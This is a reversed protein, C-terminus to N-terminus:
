DIGGWGVGLIHIKANVQWCAEMLRDAGGVGLIHIKANVQWCAEMLRDGGVGGRIHTNKRKGALM